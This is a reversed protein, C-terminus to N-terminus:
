QIDEQHHTNQTSRILWITVVVGATISLALALLSALPTLLTM